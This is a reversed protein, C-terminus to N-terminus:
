IVDIVMVVPLKYLIAQHLLLLNRFSGVNPFFLTSNIFSFKCNLLTITISLLLMLFRFSCLRHHIIHHHIFSTYRSCHCTMAQIVGHLRNSPNIVTLIIVLMHMTTYILINVILSCSNEYYFSLLKWLRCLIMDFM